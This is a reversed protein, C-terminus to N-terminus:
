GRGGEQEEPERLLERATELPPKLSLASMSDLPVGRHYLNEAEYGVMDDDLDFYQKMVGRAEAPTLIGAQVLNIVSDVEAKFERLNVTNFVLKLDPDIPQFLYHNLANSLRAQLPKIVSEYYTRSSEVATSGGLSGTRNVGIRYPPMKHVSLVEDEVRKLLKLFRAETNLGGLEKVDFKISDKDTTKMTMVMASHPNMITSKIGEKIKESVDYTPNNPDKDQFNGILSVILSPVGYNKFFMTNYRKASLELYISNLASIIPPYGYFYSRPNYRNIWIISDGAEEDSLNDNFKGTEPDVKKDTGALTFWVEKEGVKQVARIDDYTRRMTHAPIHYLNVPVSDEYSVALACYGIAQYDIVASKLTEDLPDTFAKITEEALQIADEEGKLTWGPSVVDSAITRVCASHTTNAELLISLRTPDYPPPVIEKEGYVREFPDKILHKTKDDKLAYDTVEKLTFGERAGIFSVGLGMDDNGEKM